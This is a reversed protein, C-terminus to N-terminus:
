QDKKLRIILQKLNKRFIEKTAMILGQVFEVLFITKLFRTLNM